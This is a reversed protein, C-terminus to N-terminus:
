KRDVVQFGSNKTWMEMFAYFSKALKGMWPNGKADEKKIQEDAWERGAKQVAAIVEPSLEVLENRGSEGMKRM